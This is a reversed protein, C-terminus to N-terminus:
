GRTRPGATVVLKMPSGERASPSPRAKVALAAQVLLSNHLHGHLGKWVISTRLAGLAQDVEAETNFIGASLRAYPTAYPSTSAIVKKALLVKVVDEPKKGDVEFCCIGASLAADRPTHLRVGRTGARGDKIRGNLEAVRAAVRARGLVTADQLRRRHGM